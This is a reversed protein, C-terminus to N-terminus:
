ETGACVQVMYWNYFTEFDKAIFYLGGSLEVENQTKVQAESQKDKGVKVEIMVSRGNIIATIDGIGRRVNSKTWRGLTPNYQGQSQIRSCYHGKLTLWKVICQTLGNSTKDSFKTRSVAHSPVNKYLALKASYDFEQLVALAKM